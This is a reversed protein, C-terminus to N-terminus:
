AKLSVERKKTLCQYPYASGHLRRWFPISLRPRLCMSQRPCSHSCFISWLSFPTSSSSGLCYWSCPNSGTWKNALASRNFSGHWGSCSAFFSPFLGWGSLWATSLWATSSCFIGLLTEEPILRFPSGFTFQRGIWAWGFSPRLPRRWVGWPLFTSPCNIWSCTTCRTKSMSKRLSRRQWVM